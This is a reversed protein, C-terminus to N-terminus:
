APEVDDTAVDDLHCGGVVVGAEGPERRCVRSPLQQGEHARSRGLWLARGRWTCALAGRGM